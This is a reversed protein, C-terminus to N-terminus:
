PSAPVPTHDPAPTRARRQAGPRGRGRSTLRRRHEARERSRGAHSPSPASRRRRGARRGARSFAPTMRWGGAGSAGCTSSSATHPERPACRPACGAGHADPTRSQVRLCEPGWVARVLEAKSFVRTPDGAAHDGAGRIVQQNARGAPRRVDRPSRRPRHAAARARDDAHDGDAPEGGGTEALRQLSRRGSAILDRAALMQVGTATPVDPARRATPPMLVEIEEVKRSLADIAAHVRGQDHRSRRGKM